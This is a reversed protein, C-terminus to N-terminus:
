RWFETFTDRIVDPRTGVPSDVSEDDRRGGRGGTWSKRVSRTIDSTSRQASWSTRIKLSFVSAVLAMSSYRFSTPCFYRCSASPSDWSLCVQMCVVQMCVQLYEMKFLNFQLNEICLLLRVDMRYSVSRKDWWFYRSKQSSLLLPCFTWNRMLQKQSFFFGSLKIKQQLLKM